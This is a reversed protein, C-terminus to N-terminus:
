AQEIRGGGNLRLVEALVALATLAKGEVPFTEVWLRHRLSEVHDSEFSVIFGRGAQERRAVVAAFTLTMLERFALDQASDMILRRLEPDTFAGIQRRSDHDILGRYGQVYRGTASRSSAYGRDIMWQLALDITTEPREIFRHFARLDKRTLRVAICSGLRPM